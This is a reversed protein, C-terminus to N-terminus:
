VDRWDHIWDENNILKKNYIIVDNVSDAEIWKGHVFHVRIKVEKEVLIQLMSTMDISKKIKDDLLNYHKKLISLGKKSFKMLGMYQAQIEEYSDTRDGISKLFNNDTEFIEADELPNEMRLDWLNKWRLDALITIDYKSIRLHEIYSSHYIIDSYAVITDGNFFKSCFLSYVMNTNNWLKNNAKEYFNPIMQSKYGTVIQINKIGSKDIASRQWSLISKGGIEVLCKPRESTLNQMRSGRGAALILFRVNGM